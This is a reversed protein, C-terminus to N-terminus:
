LSSETEVKHSEMVKLNSALSSLKTVLDWFAEKGERRNLSVASNKLNKFARQKNSDWSKKRFHEKEPM